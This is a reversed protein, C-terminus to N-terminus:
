QLVRLRAWLEHAPLRKKPDPDMCLGISLVLSDPIKLNYDKLDKPTEFMKALIDSSTFPHEGTLCYFLCVGLSYIDSKGTVNEGQIQEPSAYVPSGVSSYTFVTKSNLMKAIGFDIIKSVGNPTIFINSPKIDRHVLGNSHIHQLARAIQTGIKVTEHVELKKERDIKDQLSEGELYDMSYYYLQDTTGVDFIRVINPHNMAQIIQCEQLFMEVVGTDDKLEPLITKIAVHRQREKDYAKAILGMGGKEIVQIDKYNNSLASIMKRLLEVYKDKLDPIEKQMEKPITPTKQRSSSSEKKKRHLFFVLGSILALILILFPILLNM